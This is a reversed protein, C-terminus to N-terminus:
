KHCPMTSVMRAGKVFEQQRLHQVHNIIHCAPRRKNLVFQRAPQHRTWSNTPKILTQPNRRESVEAAVAEAVAVVVEVAADEAEVEQEARM